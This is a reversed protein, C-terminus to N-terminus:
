PKARKFTILLYGSGSKAEFVAPRSKDLNPANDCITLTDGDLTYIGKWPKGKPAGETHEFDIAAPKGNPIWGSVPDSVEKDSLGTLPAFIAFGLLDHLRRVQRNAFRM